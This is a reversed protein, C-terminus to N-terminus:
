RSADWQLLKHQTHREVSWPPTPTPVFSEPSYLHDHETSPTETRKDTKWVQALFTVTEWLATSQRGSASYHEHRYQARGNEERSHCWQSFPPVRPVALRLFFTSLWCALSALSKLSSHPMVQLHETNSARHGAHVGENWWGAHPLFQICQFCMM